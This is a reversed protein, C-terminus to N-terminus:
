PIFVQLWYVANSVLPQFDGVTRTFGNGSVQLAVPVITNTASVGQSRYVNYQRGSKTRFRVQFYPQSQRRRLERIELVDTDILPSTDATYEQLTTMGDQDTDALELLDLDNTLSYYQDIWEYPIGNSTTLLTFDATLQKAQHMVLHLVTNTEEGIMVDGTWGDFVEYPSGAVTLTGTSGLSLWENAGNVQGGGNITVGLWVNTSWLWTITSANTLLFSGTDPGAGVPPVSGTGIWGTCVLQTIGAVNVPSDPVSLNIPEGFLQGTTGAAPVPTGYQSFVTLPLSQSLISILHTNTSQLVANSSVSDITVTFNEVLEFDNTDALIDLVFNTCVQNASFVIPNTPMLYDLGAQATMDMAGLSVLVPTDAPYSLAINLNINTGEAVDLQPPLLDYRYLENPESAVYIQRRNATLFVGEPQPAPIDIMSLIRGDLTCEFLRNSEDSLILLNGTVPDISIDSLDTALGDFVQEADFLVDLVANSQEILIRYVGMPDREQVVYFSDNLPDFVVGELGKNFLKPEPLDISFSQGTARSVVTDNTTIDILTLRDASSGEEVIAFLNNTADVICFGEADDFGPLSIERRFVGNTGYVQISPTGAATRNILIYVEQDQEVLLCASFDSETPGQLDDFELTRTFSSLRNDIKFEVQRQAGGVHVVDIHNSASLYGPASATISVRQRGDVITDWVPHLDLRVSRINTTLTIANTIWLETSDSLSIAVNLTQTPCPSAEIHVWHELRGASEQIVSNTVTLHLADAAESIAAFACQTCIIAFFAKAKYHSKLM